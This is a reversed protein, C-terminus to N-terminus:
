KKKAKEQKETRAFQVYTINNEPILIDLNSKLDRCWFGLDDKWLEFETAKLFKETRTGTLIVSNLAISVIEM